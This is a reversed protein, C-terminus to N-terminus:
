KHSLNIAIYKTLFFRLKHGLTEIKKDYRLFLFIYNQIQINYSSKNNYNTFHSVFSCFYINESLILHFVLKPHFKMVTKILSM